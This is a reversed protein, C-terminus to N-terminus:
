IQWHKENFLIDTNENLFILYKNLNFDDIECKM